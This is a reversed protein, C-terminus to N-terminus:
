PGNPRGAILVLPQQTVPLGLPKLFLESLLTQAYALGECVPSQPLLLVLATYIPIPSHQPALQTM